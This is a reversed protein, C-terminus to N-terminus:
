FFGGGGGGGFGGGGVGGGFGGGGLGGAGTTRPPADREEILKGEGLLGALRDHVGPRQGVVLWGGRPLGLEELVANAVTEDEQDEERGVTILRTQTVDALEPMLTHLMTTLEHAVLGHTSYVRCKGIGADM